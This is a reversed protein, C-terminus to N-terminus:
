RFSLSLFPIESLPGGQTFAQLCESDTMHSSSIAPKLIHCHYLNVLVGPALDILIYPLVGQAGRGPAAKIRM